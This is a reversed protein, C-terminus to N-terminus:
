GAELYPGEGADLWYEMWPEYECWAFIMADKPGPQYFKADCIYATDGPYLYDLSEFNMWTVALVAHALMIM